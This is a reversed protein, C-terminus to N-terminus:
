WPNVNEVKPPPIAEPRMLAQAEKFALWLILDDHWWGQQHAAALGEAIEAGIRLIDRTAFPELQDRRDQLSKGAVYEMVLYPLPQEYVEYAVAQVNRDEDNIRVAGGISLVYQAARRDADQKEAAAKTVTVPEQSVRVVQRGNKTVAVLERSVLKGDKSAEVVYRGPQLRIEKPPSECRVSPLPLSVMRSSAITLPLAKKVRPAPLSVTVRPLAGAPMREQVLPLPLSETVNPSPVVVAPSTQFTNMRNPVPLSVSVRLLV